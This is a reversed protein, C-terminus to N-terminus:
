SVNKLLSHGKKPITHPNFPHTHGAERHTRDVDHWGSCLVSEVAVEARFPTKPNGGRQVGSDRLRSYVPSVGWVTPALCEARYTGVSVVPPSSLLHRGAGGALM